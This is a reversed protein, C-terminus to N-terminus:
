GTTSMLPGTAGGDAATTGTAPAPAPEGVPAKEGGGSTEPAPPDGTTEAAPPNALDTPGVPCACARLQLAMLVVACLAIVVEVTYVWVRRAASPPDGAKDFHAKIDGVASALDIATAPRSTEPHEQM